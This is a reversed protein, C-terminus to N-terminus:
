QVGGGGGGITPSVYYITNDVAYSTPPMNPNGGIEQFPKAMEKPNFDPIPTVVGTAPDFQQGAAVVQTVVVGDKNLYSIVVSGAIVRVLGSADIIYTTGRIGAVGTPFKVEYRSAASLKKVNGMIRGARLDLQIENVVDTGTEETTLKDIALISNPTIRVVNGQEGAGSAGPAHTVRRAIPQLAGSDAEGLVIDVYSDKATQIVSGSKIAMGEKVPQWTKNDTTYRAAGKVATVKATGQKATQAILDTAWAMTLMAVSCAVAKNICSLKIKM